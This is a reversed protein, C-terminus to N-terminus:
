WVWWPVLTMLDFNTSDTTQSGHIDKYFANWETTTAITFLCISVATGLAM